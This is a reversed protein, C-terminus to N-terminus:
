HNGCAATLSLRESSDYYPQSIEVLWRLSHGQVIDLTRWSLDSAILYRYTEEEEYKIAV